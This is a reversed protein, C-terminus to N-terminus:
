GAVEEVSEPQEISFVAPGFRRKKRSEIRASAV